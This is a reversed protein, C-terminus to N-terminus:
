EGRLFDLQTAISTARFTAEARAAAPTTMSNPDPQIEQGSRKAIAIVSERDASPALWLRAVESYIRGEADPSIPEYASNVLRYGLVQYNIADRDEREGSDVILYEQVGGQAYIALKAELDADVFRPSVVEVILMPGQGEAAVDLLTRQSDWSEVNPVIAM